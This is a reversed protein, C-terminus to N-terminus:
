SDRWMNSAVYDSYVNFDVLIWHLEMVTKVYAFSTEVNLTPKNNKNVISNRICDDILYRHFYNHKDFNDYLISYYIKKLFKIMRSEKIIRQM